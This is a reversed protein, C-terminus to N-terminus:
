PPNGRAQQNCEQVQPSPLHVTMLDGPTTRQFLWGGSAGGGRQGGPGAAELDCPPLSLVGWSFIHAVETAKVM